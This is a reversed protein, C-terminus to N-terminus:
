YIVNILDFPICSSLSPLSEETQKMYGILLLEYKSKYFNYLADPIIDHISFRIHNSCLIHIFDDATKILNNIFGIKFKKNTLKYISETWLDLFFMNSDYFVILIHDFALTCEFSATNVVHLLNLKKYQKWEFVDGKVNCGM